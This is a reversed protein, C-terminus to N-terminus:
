FIGVQKTGEIWDDLDKRDVLIKKNRFRLHPVHGDLVLERTSWYSLGIYRAASKLDLLRVDTERDATGHKSRTSEVKRM